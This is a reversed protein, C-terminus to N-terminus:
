GLAKYDDRTDRALAIGALASVGCCAAIILHTDLYCSTGFCDASGGVAHSQYVASAVATSLVVSGFTPALAALSYNSAFYRLGFLDSVIGPSLAWSAGYATGGLLAGAILAGLGPAMMLLQAGGMLVVAFTLLWPRSVRGALQDSGIGAGMRGLCNCISLLSVLLAGLDTAGDQAKVMQTVNNLIMLGGGQLSFLLVFLLLFRRSRLLEGPRMGQSGEGEDEKGGEEAAAGSLLPKDGGAEEASGSGNSDGGGGGGAGGVRGIALFGSLLLLMLVGLAYWTGQALEGGAQIKAVNVCLLYLALVVVLGSGKKFTANALGGDNLPVPAGAERLGRSALLGLVSLGAALFLLFQAAGVEGDRVAACVGGGSDTRIALGDGCCGFPSLACPPPPAAAAPCSVPLGTSDARETTGDACCGHESGACGEPREFLVFYIVALVSGSLGYFAKLLGIAKGRFNVFNKFTVTVAASDFYSSGHGALASFLVLLPLPVSVSGNAALYLCLYGAFNFFVGMFVTNRAGGYASDYFFGSVPIYNGVNSALALSQVKTQADADGPFLAEKLQSSYTGFVYVAGGCLELFVAAALAAYVMRNASPM